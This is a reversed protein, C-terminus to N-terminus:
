SGPTTITFTASGTGGLERPSQTCTYAGTWGAFAGTGGVLAFAGTELGSGLGLLSGAEFTFVHLHAGPGLPVSRFTGPRGRDDVVDGATAGQGSDTKRWHWHSGTIRLVHPEAEAAQVPGAAVLAGGAGVGLAAAGLFGRRSMPSSASPASEHSRPEPM